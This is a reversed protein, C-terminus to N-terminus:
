RSPSVKKCSNTYGNGVNSWKKWAQVTPGFEMGFGSTQNLLTAVTIEEHSDEYVSEGTEADISRLIRIPTAFHPFYKSM